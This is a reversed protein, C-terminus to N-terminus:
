RASDATTQAVRLRYEHREHAVSGPTQRTLSVSPSSPSSPAAAGQQQSANFRVVMLAAAVATVVLLLATRARPSTLLM